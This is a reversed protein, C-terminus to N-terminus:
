SGGGMGAPCSPFTGAYAIWSDLNGIIPSILLTLAVVQGFGWQDEEGSTEPTMCERGERRYRVIEEICWIFFAWNVIHTAIPHFMWWYVALSVVWIPIWLVLVVLVIGLSLIKKLTAAPVVATRWAWRPWIVAFLLIPLQGAVSTTITVWMEVYYFILVGHPPSVHTVTDIVMGATTSIILLVMVAIQWAPVDPNPGYAYVQEAYGVHGTYRHTL